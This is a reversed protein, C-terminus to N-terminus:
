INPRFRAPRDDDLSVVACGGLAPGLPMEGYAALAGQEQLRGVFGPEDGKAVWAFSIWSKRVPQGGARLVAAFVEGDPTGPPFVALVTGGAERELAAENLTWGMLGLWLALVAGGLALAFGHGPSPAPASPHAPADTM